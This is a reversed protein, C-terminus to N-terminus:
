KAPAKPNAFAQDYARAWADQREQLYEREELSLGVFDPMTNMLFYFPEVVGYRLINGTAYLPLAILRFPHALYEPNEATSIGGSLGGTDQRSITTACGSLLGSLVLGIM